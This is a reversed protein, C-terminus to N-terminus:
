ASERLYETLAKARVVGRSSSSRPDPNLRPIVEALTTAPEAVTLNLATKSVGATPM